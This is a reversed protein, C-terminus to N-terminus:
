NSKKKESQSQLKREYEDNFREQPQKMFKKCEKDGRFGYKTCVKVVFRGHTGPEGGASSEYCYCPCTYPWYPCDNGCHGGSSFAVCDITGFSFVWGCAHHHGIVKFEDCVLSAPEQTDIMWDWYLRPTSELSIVVQREFRSDEQGISWTMGPTLGKLCDHTDVGLSSFLTSGSM